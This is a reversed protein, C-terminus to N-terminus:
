EKDRGDPDALRIDLPDSNFDFELEGSDLYKLNYIIILTGSDGEILDFQSLFQKMDHFPSYKQILDLEIKLQFSFRELNPRKNKTQGPSYALRLAYFPSGSILFIRVYMDIQPKKHEHNASENKFLKCVLIYDECM